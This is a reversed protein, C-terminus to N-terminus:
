GADSKSNTDEDAPHDDLTLREEPPAFRRELYAIVTSPDAPLLLHIGRFNDLYNRRSFPSLVIGGSTRMWRRFQKWDYHTRFLRKDIDIGADSFVVTVPLFYSNLAIFLILAALLALVPGFFVASFVLFMGIFSVVIATKGPEEKARHVTWTLGGTSSENPEPV